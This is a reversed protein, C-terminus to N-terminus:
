REAGTALTEALEAARQRALERAYHGALRRRQENRAEVAANRNLLELALRDNILVQLRAALATQAAWDLPRGDHAALLAALQTRMAEAAARHQAVWQLYGALVPDAPDLTPGSAAPAAGDPLPAALRSPRAAGFQTSGDALAASKDGEQRVEADHTGAKAAQLLYDNLGAEGRSPDVVPRQAVATAATALGCLLWARTSM